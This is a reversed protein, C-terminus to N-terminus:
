LCGRIRRQSLKNSNCLGPARIVAATGSVTVGGAVPVSVDLRSPRGMDEGQRVVFDFPAEAYGADRLPRDLRLENIWLVSTVPLMSANWVGM